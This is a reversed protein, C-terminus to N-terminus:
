RSGRGSSCDMRDSSGTTSSMSSISLDSSSNSANRSSSSLSICTVIGSTPTTRAFVMGKTTRVELRVRGSLSARRRRHAYRYIWYGLTSFSTDIM